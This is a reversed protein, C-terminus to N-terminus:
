VWVAALTTCPRSCIVPSVVYRSCAGHRHRHRPRSPCSRSPVHCMQANCMDNSPRVPASTRRITRTGALNPQQQAPVAQTQQRLVGPIVYGQMDTESRCTVIICDHPTTVDGRCASPALQLFMFCPVISACWCYVGENVLRPPPAPAMEDRAARTHHRLPCICHPMAYMPPLSTRSTVFKFSQNQHSWHRTLPPDIPMMLLPLAFVFLLM